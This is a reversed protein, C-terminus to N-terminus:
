EAGYSKGTEASAKGMATAIDQSKVQKSATTEGRLRAMRQVSEQKEKEKKEEEERLRKIRYEEYIAMVQARAKAYSEDSFAKDNSNMNAMQDDTVSAPTKGGGLLQKIFEGGFDRFGSVASKGATQTHLKAETALDAAIDM